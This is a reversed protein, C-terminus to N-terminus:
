NIIVKKTTNNVKVAYVGPTFTGRIQTSTGTLQQSILKQGIANYVSAISGLNLLDNCIVTLRHPANSFVLISNDQKNELGTVAGPTRFIVSFRDSSTVVPSFQYTAVGDTLDTEVNTINDKLIVKVDAPLNSVENALLSFSTANGAVFGLGIPTDLPITNMGNIVIQESGLTTYIEPMDVNENSMKPADYADMGNSAKSSFYLVAEDTNTGNSVQFRVLTNVTNKAAPAKLLKDSAPAHARMANTLALTGGDANARVWFAQMPPIKANVGIPSSVGDGNVTWFYYTGASKTRYWMTTSRMLATNAANATVLTWDLYSPYPNGILNFGAKNAIDPRSTLSVNQNGTNLTGTFSINNAALAPAVSYGTKALMTTIPNAIPDNWTNTGENYSRISSMGTPTASAVPPTLYWTRITGLQYHQLSQNVTSTGSVTLGGNTNADVITGTGNTADSNITLDGTVGLTNGSNITVKGGSNITLSPTTANAAVTILHSNLVTVSAASKTPAYTVDVFTSNDKSSQWSGVDAWNGSAKSQFYAVEWAGMAPSTPRGASGYDTSIGTRTVGLLTTTIVKYDAVVATGATIAAAGTFSPNVAQSNVDQGTVIVSTTKDAGGYYGLKSGVGSVFYDNY